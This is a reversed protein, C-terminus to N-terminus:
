KYELQMLQLFMANLNLEQDVVFAARYQHEAMVMVAEGISEPKLKEYLDHYCSMIIENVDNDLNDVTWKRVEKFNKDRLLPILEKVGVSSVQSLASADIVGSSSLTQLENIARRYDPFYMEIIKAVVKKEYTVLNEDLINCLREFFKAAMKPRQAKAMTFDIVTCRSHLAPILKNKYNCTMVFSCNNQLEEIAARLAKQADPTLNDAEDLILIKKGGVLSTTSAFGFMKTRVEDIGRESSANMFMMDAGLEECLAKAVTTKGVGPGGALILNPVSKNDVFNQFKVKLEDPLICESISKPAYRECWLYNNSM